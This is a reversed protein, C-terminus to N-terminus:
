VHARGIESYIEKHAPLPLLLYNDETQYICHSLALTHLNNSRINSLDNASCYSDVEEDGLDGEDGTTSDGDHIDQENEYEVSRAAGELAQACELEEDHGEDEGDDDAEADLEGEDFIGRNAGDKATVQRGPLEDLRM